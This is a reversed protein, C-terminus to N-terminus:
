RSTRGSIRRNLDDMSLPKSAGRYCLTRRGRHDIVERDPSLPPEFEREPFSSVDFDCQAQLLEYRHSVAKRGEEFATETARSPFWLDDVPEYLTMRFESIIEGSTRKWVRSELLGGRSLNYVETCEVSKNPFRLTSVVAQSTGNDRRSVDWVLDEKMYPRVGTHYLPMEGGGSLWRVSATFDEAPDLRGRDSAEIGVASDEKLDFSFLLDPTRIKRREFRTPAGSADVLECHSEYSALKRQSDFAMRHQSSLYPVANDGDHKEMHHTWVLVFSRLRARNQEAESIVLNCVPPGSVNSEHLDAAPAETRSTEQNAQRDTPFNPRTTQRASPQQSQSDAQKIEGPEQAVLDVRVIHIATLGIVTAISITAKWNSESGWPTLLRRIRKAFASGFIATSWAPKQQGYEAISVLAKAYTIPGTSRSQAIEDCTWEVSEEYRRAAFWAFPNFWHIATVLFIALIKVLDRREFHALEHHLISNREEATLAEWLGQPVVVRYGDPWRGLFPGADRSVFLSIPASIGRAKLVASWEHNWVERDCAEAINSTVLRFYDHIHRGVVIVLGSSWALALFIAVNWRSKQPAAEVRTHSPGGDSELLNNEFRDELYESTSPRRTLKDNIKPTANSWPVSVTLQCVLVGQLLVILWVTRHIFSRRCQTAILVGVAVVSSIALFLSAIGLGQLFDSLQHGSM